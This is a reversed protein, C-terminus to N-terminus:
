DIFDEANLLGALEPIDLRFGTYWRLPPIVQGRAQRNDPRNHGGSAQRVERNKKQEPNGFLNDVTPEESSDNHQVQQQGPEHHIDSMCNHQELVTTLTITVAM